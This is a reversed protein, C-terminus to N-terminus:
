IEDYFTLTWGKPKLNKVKNVAVSANGPTCGVERAFSHISGFLKKVGNKEALIPKHKSM